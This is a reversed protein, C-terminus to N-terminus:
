KISIGEAEIVKTLALEMISRAHGTLNGLLAHLEADKKYREICEASYVEFQILKLIMSSLHQPCECKITASASALNILQNNSYTRLPAKGDLDFSKSPAKQLNDKKILHLLESQLHDVTVPAQLYLHDTKNLLAKAASNTFGYILVLKKAGSKKFLNNINEIHDEQIAPYELVLIDLNSNQNKEHFDAETRYLGNFIFSSNKIQTHQIQLPLVDGIVVVSVSKGIDKNDNNNINNKDHIELREILRENELIM